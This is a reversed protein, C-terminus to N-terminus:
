SLSKEGSVDTVAASNNSFFRDAAGGFALRVLLLLFMLQMFISFLSDIIMFIELDQFKHTLNEPHYYVHDRTRLYMYPSKIGRSWLYNVLLAFLFIVGLSKGFRLKRQLRWFVILSFIGYGGYLLVLKLRAMGMGPVVGKFAAIVLWYIVAVLSLSNLLCLGQTICVSPPLQM